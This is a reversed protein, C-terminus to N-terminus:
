RPSGVSGTTAGVVSGSTCVLNVSESIAGGNPLFWCCHDCGHSNDVGVGWYSSTPPNTEAGYCIKDGPNGTASVNGSGGVPIIWAQGGGPFDQGTTEDWLRVYLGRGDSCGDSVLLNLTASSPPPPVPTPTPVQPIPTPPVSTPTRNVAITPVPSPQVPATPGDNGNCGAVELALLVSIAASLRRAVSNM